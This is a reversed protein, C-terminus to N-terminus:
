EKVGESSASDENFLMRIREKEQDPIIVFNSEFEVEFPIQTIRKSDFQSYEQKVLQTMESLTFTTKFHNSLSDILNIAQPVSKWSLVEASLAQIVKQQRIGREIDSSHYGDNSKRFRIFDLTQKGDLTQVGKNLHIHTNDTPDDYNMNRDVEVEIGGVADVAEQVFDFSVMAVHDIRLDFEKEVQAKLVDASTAFMKQGFVLGGFHTFDNDQIGNEKMYKQAKLTGQYFISNIKMAEGQYITKLDRPISLMQLAHQDYQYRLLLITDTNMSAHGKRSDLGILLVVLDADEQNSASEEPETQEMQHYISDGQDIKMKEYKQLIYGYVTGGAILLVALTILLPLLWKRNRRFYSQDHNNTEKEM